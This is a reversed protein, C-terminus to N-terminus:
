VGGKDIIHPTFRNGKSMNERAPLYQLNHPVHLGCILEGALPLIHDVEYGEPRETYIRRIEGLDSWQPTRERKRTERLMTSHSRYEKTNSMGHKTLRQTVVESHYCGCSRSVGRKLSLSTVDRETGCDCRCSWYVTQGNKIHSMEM